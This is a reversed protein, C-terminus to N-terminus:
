KRAKSDCLIQKEVKTLLIKTDLRMIQENFKYLEKQIDYINIQYQKRKNICYQITYEKIHVKLNGM